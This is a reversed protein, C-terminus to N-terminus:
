AAAEADLGLLYREFTENCLCAPSRKERITAIADAATAGELMLARAVVLSSRNLGAQCHVLVAGSKRCTNVWAALSDVQEIGQEHSDYMRVNIASDIDHEYTYAEWPYLSVLHTIFEPLVLGRRCGGQWLNPAIESIFPVDFPTNGHFAVGSMRQQQPDFDIDIATPDENM